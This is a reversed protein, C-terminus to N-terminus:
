DANGQGKGLGGFIHLGIGVLSAFIGYRSLDSYSHLEYSEVIFAWLLLSSSVTLMASGSYQLLRQWRRPRMSLYVGMIIHILASFFIYIHRSRMLVRLEPSIMDKDPFDARMYQGTITFAAFLVFGFILHFWKM